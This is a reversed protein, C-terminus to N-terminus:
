LRHQGAAAAAPRRGCARHATQPDADDESRLPHRLCVLGASRFRSNSPPTRRPRHAGCCGRCPPSPRRPSRRHLSRTQFPDTWVPGRRVLRAARRQKARESPFGDWVAARRGELRLNDAAVSEMLRGAQRWHVDWTLLAERRHVLNTSLIPPGEFVLPGSQPDFGFVKAVDAAEPTQDPSQALSSMPVGILAVISALLGVVRVSLSM